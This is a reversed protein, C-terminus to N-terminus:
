KNNNLTSIAIAFDLNGVASSTAGANLKTDIPYQKQQQQQQQKSHHNNLNYLISNYHSTYGFFIVQCLVCNNNSDQDLDKM